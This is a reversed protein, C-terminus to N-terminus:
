GAGEADFNMVPRANIGADGAATRFFSSSDQGRQARPVSNPQPRGSRQEALQQAARSRRMSRDVGLTVQTQTEKEATTVPTLDAESVTAIVEAPMKEQMSSQYKSDQTVYMELKSPGAVIRHTTGPEVVIEDGHTIMKESVPQASLVDGDLLEWVQYKGTGAVVRYARTKKPHLWAPTMCQPMVTFFKTEFHKTTSGDVMYGFDTQERPGVVMPPATHQEM